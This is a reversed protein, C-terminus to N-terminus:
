PKGLPLNVSVANGYQVKGYVLRPDFRPNPPPPPDPRAPAEVDVGTDAARVVLALITGAFICALLGRM